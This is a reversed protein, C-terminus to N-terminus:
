LTYGYFGINDVLSGAKGWFGFLQYGPPVEAYFPNGDPGGYTLIRFTSASGTKRTYFRLRNVYTGNSLGTVKYIYEGTEFYKLYYLGGSGGAGATYITGDSRRYWFQIRDILSGSRIAVALLRSYNPPSINFPYGGRGGFPGFKYTFIAVAERGNPSSETTEIPIANRLEAPLQEWTMKPTNSEDYEVANDVGATTPTPNVKEQEPQCSFLVGALLMFVMAHLPLKVLQTIPSCATLRDTTKM